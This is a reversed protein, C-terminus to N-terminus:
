VVQEVCEAISKLSGFQKSHMRKFDPANSHVSSSRDSSDFKRKLGSTKQQQQVSGGAISARSSPLNKITKSVGGSLPTAVKLSPRAASNAGSTSHGVPRISGAVSPPASISHRAHAPTASASSSPKAAAAITFATSSPPAQETSVIKKQIAGLRLQQTKNMRPLMEKGAGSTVHTSVAAAAPTATASASASTTACATSASAINVSPTPVVLPASSIVVPAESSMESAVDDAAATVEVATAAVEEMKELKMTEALQEMESRRVQRRREQRRSTPGGGSKVASDELSFKTCSNWEISPRACSVPTPPARPCSLPALLEVRLKKLPTPVAPAALVAAPKIAEGIIEQISEEVMEESFTDAVDIKQNKAEDTIEETAPEVIDMTENQENEEVDNIEPECVDDEVNTVVIEEEKEDVTPITVEAQPSSVSEKPPESSSAPRLESFKITIENGTESLVVRATKKNLRKVTAHLWLGNVMADTADGVAPIHETAPMITSVPDASEVAVSVESEVVPEIKAVVTQIIIEQQAETIEPEIAVSQAPVEADCLLAIIDNNSLNAKVGFAKALTQLEKRSLKELELRQM